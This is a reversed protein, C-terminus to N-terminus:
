SFIWKALRRYVPLDVLRYYLYCVSLLFIMFTFAVLGLLTKNEAFSKFLGSMVFIHILGYHALFIVYSAGGLAIAIKPAQWKERSELTMVVTLLLGGVGGFVLARTLGINLYYYVGVMLLPICLLVAVYLTLQYNFIKRYKFLIMGTLFELLYSSYFFSFFTPNGIAETTILSERLVNVTVIFLYLSILIKTNKYCGLYLGLCFLVYFYLEYTLSWTMPLVLKQLDISTLTISSFWNVRDLFEPRYIIFILSTFILFPFYGSYIRLFRKGLIRKIQVGTEMFHYQQTIHMLIYGSIVRFIDTGFFLHKGILVAIDNGGLVRYHPAFHFYAIMIAAMARILQINKLM